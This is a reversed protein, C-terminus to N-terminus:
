SISFLFWKRRVQLFDDSMTVQPTPKPTTISQPKRNDLYLTKNMQKARVPALTAPIFDKYKECSHPCKYHLDSLSQCWGHRAWVPCHPDHDALKFDTEAISSIFKVPFRLANTRERAGTRERALPARPVLTIFPYYSTNSHLSSCPTSPQIERMTKMCVQAACEVAGNVTRYWSTPGPSANERM